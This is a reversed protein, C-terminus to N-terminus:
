QHNARRLKRFVRQGYDLLRGLIPWHYRTFLGAFRTHTGGFGKKFRYLGYLPDEPEGTGPVGRLDYISCQRELAERMMNWQLLYNPMAERHEDASAGYLYWAKGGYYLAITGAIPVGDRKAIFLVGDQGMAMLLNEFYALKRVLFRDRKGTAQMLADFSDLVEQPIHQNGPFRSVTVGRRQALRINYRTKQTFSALLRKEDMDKLSIRFVSHAQIGDFANSRRQVFGLKRMMGCFATNEEKEDPDLYTLLCRNQKALDELGAILVGMVAEENRDCVPGRPAYAFSFGLPLKRLLVSMAAAITGDDRRVLIGQWQWWYKVLAWSPSQLFHGNAHSGVFAAYETIAPDERNIIQYNM